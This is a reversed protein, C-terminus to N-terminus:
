VCCKCSEIKKQIKKNYKRKPLFVEINLKKRLNNNRSNLTSNLMSVCM